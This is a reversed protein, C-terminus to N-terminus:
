PRGHGGPPFALPEGAGLRQEPAQLEFADVDHEADGTPGDQGRVVREQVGPDPVDQHPVFLTGPVGM